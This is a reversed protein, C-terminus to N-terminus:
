RVRIFELVYEDLNGPQSREFITIRWSCPDDVTTFKLKGDPYIVAQYSGIGGCNPPGQVMIQDGEVWIRGTDSIGQDLKELSQSFKVTGDPQIDLILFADGGIKHSEWTGVIQEVETVPTETVITANPTVPTERSGCALLPICFILAVVIVKLKAPPFM